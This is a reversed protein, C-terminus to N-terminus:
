RTTRFGQLDKRKRRERECDGSCEEEGKEQARKGWERKETRKTTESEKM